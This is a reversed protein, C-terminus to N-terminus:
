ASVGLLADYRRPDGIPVQIGAMAAPVAVAQGPTGGATRNLLVQRLDDASLRGSALGDAVAERVAGAPFERHLLLIRAMERYGGEVRCLQQRAKQYPEPLDRVVAAHTVAYPKRALAELYHELKLTTQNRGEPRPHEAVRRDREWVELRDTYVDVRVVRGICAVPVSYRNREYTVLSLKNVPLLRTICPRFVDAPIPRLAAQEAAWAELRKGREEECWALLMANLEDMAEVRPLPVLVNRRVYGVLNEVSGKEHGEAPNCFASEFLYHSRLTVFREQLDREHGTLVKRVATTLNDYVIKQPVGGLSAFARAHGELFAEIRDHRCAWVFPVASARLRLCFLYVTTEVGGLMVKAQGWDVQAMEGPAATLVLYPDVDPGEVMQRLKAVYHRVTSAAGRFGHERRLRDYIRQATHRQKRPATKDAELWALIRERHPDMVPCPKPETLRYRVPEASKLAKRVTQRAVELQTSIKRISWGEIFHKKRIYEIDVVTLM